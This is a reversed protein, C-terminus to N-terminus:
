ETPHAGVTRDLAMGIKHLNEMMEAFEEPLIAQAGDVEAEHPADHVDVIMGDAGAGLAAYTLPAVSARRGTAHSPDVIIPLPSQEKWMPILSLDLTNRSHSAFTRIGRECIVVDESGNSIIYEAALLTERLTASMGRKLLVPKGTQGVRELLSFNQMNRTGIQFIDTYQGVLPVTETDLVETVVPMGTRERVEALIRLGREGLGRFSYPSTRPKYAGGRLMQAGEKQVQEAIRLTQDMSEVACPGAIVAFHGNGFRCEGVEVVTRGAQTRSSLRTERTDELVAVVGAFEAIESEVAHRYEMDNLAEGNLRIASAPYGREQLYGRVRDIEEETSTCSMVVIM